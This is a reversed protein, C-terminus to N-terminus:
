VFGYATFVQGALVFLGPWNRGALNQLVDVGVIIAAMVGAPITFLILSIQARPYLTAFALFVGMEVQYIGMAPWDRFGILGILSLLFPTVLVLVVLLKVFIRRGFFKEVDEGFRWLFYSTLVLWLSPPNVLVYTLPTWVRYDEVLGAFTFVLYQLLVPNAAMLLTTVVMTAVGGLAVYAALYVPHGKWWTLPLHDKSAPFWSM